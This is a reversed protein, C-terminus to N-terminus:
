ISEKDKDYNDHFGNIFLSCFDPSPTEWLTTQLDGITRTM